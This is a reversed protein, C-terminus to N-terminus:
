HRAELEGKDRPSSRRVQRTGRPQGRFQQRSERARQYIDSLLDRNRNGIYKQLAPVYNQLRALVLLPDSRAERTDFATILRVLPSFDPSPRFSPKDLKFPTGGCHKATFDRLWDRVAPYGVNHFTKTAEKQKVYAGAKTGRRKPRDPQEPAAAEADTPPASPAEGEVEVDEEEGGYDVGFANEEIGEVVPASSETAAAGSPEGTVVLSELASAAAEVGIAAELEEKTLVAEPPPQPAEVQGQNAPDSRAFISADPDDIPNVFDGYRRVPPEAVPAGSAAGEEAKPEDEGLGLLNTSIPAKSGEPSDQQDAWPERHPLQGATSGEIDM